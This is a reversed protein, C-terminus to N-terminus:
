FMIREKGVIFLLVNVYDDGYEFHWERWCVWNRSDKWL